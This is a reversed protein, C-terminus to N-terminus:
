KDKISPFIEPYDRRLVRCGLLDQLKHIGNMWDITETPHTQDLTLFNNHAEVLLNMIKQEKDTFGKLKKTNEM